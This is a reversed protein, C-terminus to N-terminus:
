IWDVKGFVDVRCSKTKFEIYVFRDSISTIANFDDQRILTAIKARAVVLYKDM